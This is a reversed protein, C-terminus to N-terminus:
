NTIPIRGDNCRDAEVGRVAPSQEGPRAVLEGLAVVLEHETDSNTVREVEVSAPTDRRLEDQIGDLPSERILEVCGLPSFGAPSAELM